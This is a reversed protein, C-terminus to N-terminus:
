RSPPTAAVGTTMWCGEYRPGTQRELYWTYATATGTADVVTVPQSATDERRDLPGYRVATANLLPRFGRRITEVFDAYSGAVARNSPAAFHWTTNIGENTAPDNNQLALVQIHVVLGPPRECNPRLGLVRPQTVASTNAATVNGWYGREGGQPAAAEAGGAPTEDTPVAAPTVTPDASSPGGGFLAGCGALLAVVCVAGLRVASARTM